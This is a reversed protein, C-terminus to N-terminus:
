DVCDELRLDGIQLKIDKSFPKEVFSVGINAFYMKTLLSDLQNRGSQGFIKVGVSTLSLTIKMKVFQSIEHSASQATM